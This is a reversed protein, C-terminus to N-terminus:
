NIKPHGLVCFLFIVGLVLRQEGPMHWALLTYKNDRLLKM